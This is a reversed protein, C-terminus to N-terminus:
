GSVGTELGLAAAELRALRPYAFLCKATEHADLLTYLAELLPLPDTGNELSDFIELIRHRISEQGEELLNPLLGSGQGGFQRLRPLLVRSEIAFHQELLIQFRSFRGAGTKTQGDHCLVQTEELLAVLRVYHSSSATIRRPMDM